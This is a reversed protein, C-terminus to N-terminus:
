LAPEYPYSEEPWHTLLGLRNTGPLRVRKPAPDFSMIRHAHYWDGYIASRHYGAQSKNIESLASGFREGDYISVWDHGHEWAERICSFQAELSKKGYGRSKVDGKGDLSFSVGPRAYFRGGEIDPEWGGLPLGTSETGTNRPCPLDPLEAGQIGDTAVSYIAGPQSVILELLQARTNSTINGSWIFCQFPPLHGVTQALKGYVGNPGLKFVKGRGTKKGVRVRELYYAPLEGFPRCTCTTHYYWAESAEVHPSLQKGLLYEKAWVWGGPASWPYVVKGTKGRVPFPAWHGVPEVHPLRWHVLALTAGLVDSDNVHDCYTWTGHMLCPLFTAHYPYASSIDASYIPGDIPGIVANEFRGGVFGCAIAHKMEPSPQKIQEKIGMKKLLATSTSGAGFYSQLKLGADEHAQVLARFLKALQFCEDKCYQKVREPDVSDFSGRLEKMAIMEELNEKGVIYWDELAKTFKSQFFRWIDWIVTVRGDPKGDKLRGVSFRGNMYNLRYGEWKVSRYIIKDKRRKRRSEPHLLKYIKRDPLDELWKTLDYGLSFGVIVAKPLELLFELCQASTIREAAVEWTENNEDAAALFNYRHPARGIGEGDLGIIRDITRPRDLNRKDRKRHRTASVGCTECPDGKAKHEPRVRKKRPVKELTLDQSGIDM